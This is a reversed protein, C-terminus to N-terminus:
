SMERQRLAEYLLVGAAVSLNLSQVTGRMPLSVLFDCKDRTLRRLGQGEAGIVIALSGSFDAEFATKEAEGAAGAIWLNAKKLSDLTRALNTVRFLPVTEAAGSAVKCVTPTLGVARDKPVIVGAAGVADCTRLCAGLNHPDQVQDLILLLPTGGESLLADLAQEDREPPLTVEMVIGQHHPSGALRDLRKRETLDFAIGEAQLLRRLEELKHDRRQSDLWACRIREPAHELAARAAHLGFIKRSM